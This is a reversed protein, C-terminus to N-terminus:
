VKEFSPYFPVVKTKQSLVLSLRLVLSFSIRNEHLVYAHNDHCQHHSQFRDHNHDYVYSVDGDFFCCYAHAVYYCTQNQYDAHVVVLIDVHVVALALTCGGVMRLIDYSDELAYTGVEVYPMDLAVV